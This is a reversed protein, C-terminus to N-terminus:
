QYTYPSQNLPSSQTVSFSVCISLM